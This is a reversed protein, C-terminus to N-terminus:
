IGCVSALVFHPMVTVGTVWMIIFLKYILEKVETPLALLIDNPVQDPGPAKGSSLTKCCDFFLQKDLVRKTLWTRTASM